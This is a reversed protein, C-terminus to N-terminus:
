IKSFSNLCIKRIMIKYIGDKGLPFRFGNIKLVLNKRMKKAQKRLQKVKKKQLERAKKKQLRELAAGFSTELVEPKKSSKGVEIDKM